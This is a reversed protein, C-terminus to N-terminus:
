GRKKEKDAPLTPLRGTSWLESTLAKVAWMSAEEYASLALALLRAVEPHKAENYQKLVKAIVANTELKISTAIAAAAPNVVALRERCVDPNGNSDARYVM